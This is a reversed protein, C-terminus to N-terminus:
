VVVSVLLGAAAMVVLGAWAAARAVRFGTLDCGIAVTCLEAPKRDLESKLRLLSSSLQRFEQEAPMVTSLRAANEERARRLTEGLEGVQGRLEEASEKAAQERQRLALLEETMSSLQEVHQAVALQQKKLETNAQRESDALSKIEDNAVKERHKVTDLQLTLLSLDSRAGELEAHLEDNRDALAAAHAREKSYLSRARTLETELLVMRDSNLAAIESDTDSDSDTPVDTFSTTYIFGIVTLITQLDGNALHIVSVEPFAPFATHPRPYPRVPACSPSSGSSTRSSAMTIM